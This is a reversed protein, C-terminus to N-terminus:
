NVSINIYCLSMGQYRVILKDRSRLVINKYKKCSKFTRNKGGFYMTTVYFKFYCTYFRYGDSDRILFRSKNQGFDLLVTFQKHLYIFEVIVSGDVM